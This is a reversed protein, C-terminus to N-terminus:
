RINGGLVMCARFLMFLELYDESEIRITKNNLRKAQPLLTVNEAKVESVFEIDMIINGTDKTIPYSKINRLAKELKEEYNKKLDNNSLLVVM